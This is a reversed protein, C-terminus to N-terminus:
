NREIGCFEFIRKISLLRDNLNSKLWINIELQAILILAIVNLKSNLYHIWVVPSYVAIHFNRSM